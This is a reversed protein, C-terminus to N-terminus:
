LIEVSINITDKKRNTQTKYTRSKKLDQSPDSIVQSRENKIYVSLGIFRRQSSDENYEVFTKYQIKIKMKQIHNEFVLTSM